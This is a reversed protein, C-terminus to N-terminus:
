TNPEVELLGPVACRLRHESVEAQMPPLKRHTRPLNKIGRQKQRSVCEDVKLRLSLYESSGPFAPFSM